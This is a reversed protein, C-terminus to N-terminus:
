DNLLKQEKGDKDKVFMAVGKEDLKENDANNIMNDQGCWINTMTMVNKTLTGTKDSCINNAGGM